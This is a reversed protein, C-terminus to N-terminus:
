KREGEQKEEKKEEEKEEKKKTKNHNNFYREAQMIITKLAIDQPMGNKIATTATQLCLSLVGEAYLCREKWYGSTDRRYNYNAKNYRSNRRNYPYRRYGRRYYRRSSAM